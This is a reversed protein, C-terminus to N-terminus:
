IQTQLYNYFDIIDREEKQGRGTKGSLADQIINKKIYSHLTLINDKNFVLMPNIDNEQMCKYFAVAKRFCPKCSFCPKGKQPNYCSFSNKWAKLIKVNKSLKSEKQLYMNLLEHKSKDKYALNIKIQKGETWHQKSYLYSLLESAMDAFKYSKDLVRDGATAGLCIEEGYNTALAVLYLNRLPIIKDNREWKSLDLDEVIVEKPLQKIENQSYETHMNVYLLVDPNWLQSILWSDMGGSYLLVKKM